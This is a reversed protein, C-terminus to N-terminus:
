GQMFWPDFGVELRSSTKTCIVGSSFDHHATSVLHSKMLCHCGIVSHRKGLFDICAKFLQYSSLGKGLPKRTISAQRGKVSTDEGFVVLELVASWWSGIHEFGAICGLSTTSCEYGRQNAWVRLLALADAFAPVHQKMDHVALLRRRISTALLLTNNYLPSPRNDSSLSKADMVRLNAHSPSLRSASIPSDAGLVPILRVEANLKTFDM